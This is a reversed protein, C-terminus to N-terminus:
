SEDSEGSSAQSPCFRGALEAFPQERLDLLSEPEIRRVAEGFRACEAIDLDAPERVSDLPQLRQAPREQVPGALGLPEGEVHRRQRQEDVLPQRRLRDELRERPVLAVPLHLELEECVRLQREM